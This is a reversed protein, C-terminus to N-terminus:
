QTYTELIQELKTMGQELANNLDLTHREPTYRAQYAVCAAPNTDCLLKNHYFGVAIPLVVVLAGFGLFINDSPQHRETM